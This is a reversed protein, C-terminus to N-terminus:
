FNIYAKCESTTAARKEELTRALASKCSLFRDSKLPSEGSFSIFLQQLLTSEAEAAKQQLFLISWSGQVELKPVWSPSFTESSTHTFSNLSLFIYSCSPDSNYYWLVLFRFFPQKVHSIDSSSSGLGKLQLVRMAVHIKYLLKWM